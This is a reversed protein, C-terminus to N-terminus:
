LYRELLRRSASDLARTDPVQYRIGRNDIILVRNAGLRRVEEENDLVFQTPGRDTHIEWTSPTTESSVSLIREVIPSFERRALEEQLM